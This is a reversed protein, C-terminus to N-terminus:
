IKTIRKKLRLPASAAAMTKYALYHARDMGEPLDLPVGEINRTEFFATKLPFLPNTCGVCPMGARPKSNRRNWLTKNCPSYTMPGRCGLYFFLCGNQGFETEEVRFEHYENRTCGQHVLVNYWTEPMNYYDLDIKRSECIMALLHELAAPMVPCGPLNIVPYGSGSRFDPSLLGGPKDKLFQLGTAESFEEDATVGGFSACTGVALVYGAKEALKRIINIRPEGSLTDYEGTGDPATICSGEVCLIDLSTKGTEIDSIVSEFSGNIGSSVSPHWLYELEYYRYLKSMNPIKSGTIALTDGGCGGAQIWFLTKSM